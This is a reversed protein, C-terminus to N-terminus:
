LIFGTITKRIPKRRLVQVNFSLKNHISHTINVDLFGELRLSNKEPTSTLEPLTM